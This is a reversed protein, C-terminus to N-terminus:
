WFSAHGCTEKLHLLISDKLPQYKEPLSLNHQMKHYAMELIRSFEPFKGKRQGQQAEM